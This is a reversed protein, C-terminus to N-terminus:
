FADNLLWFEYVVSISYKWLCSDGNKVTRGSFLSVKCMYFKKKLEFLIRHTGLTNEGMLMSLFLVIFAKTILQKLVCAVFGRIHSSKKLWFMTLVSKVHIQSNDVFTGM